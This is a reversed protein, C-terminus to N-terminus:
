SYKWKGGKLFMDGELCAKFGQACQTTIECVHTQTSSVSHRLSDVKTTVAKWTDCFLKSSFMFM